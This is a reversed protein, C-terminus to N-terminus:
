EHLSFSACDQSYLQQSLSPLLILGDRASILVKHECDLPSNTDQRIEGRVKAIRETLQGALGLAGM